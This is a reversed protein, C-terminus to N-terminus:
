QSVPKAGSGIIFEFETEFGSECEFQRLCDRVDAWADVKADDSLDEIVARYAGFAQQMMTLADDVSSLQLLARVTETKVDTFGNDSLLSALVGEGGLAFIGPQGASPPQKAAHKLMIQMPQANFPNNGPTTFVLAAFWYNPDSDLALTFYRIIPTLTFHWPAFPEHDALKSQCKM